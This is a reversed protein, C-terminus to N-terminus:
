LRGSRRSGHNERKPQRDCRREAIRTGIGPDPSLESIAAAIEAAALRVGRALKRGADTLAAGRGVREALAFGCLQEFDRV